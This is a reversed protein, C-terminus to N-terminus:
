PTAARLDGEFGGREGQQNLYLTQADPDFTADCFETNNSVTRAFDYIEGDLTLGRVFQEGNSDGCIFIDGNQPVVTISDPNELQSNAESEFILTVTERGPDHEWIQGLNQNGGSTCDFYVKSDGPGVWLGEERDFVADKRQAQKRVAQPSQDTDDQPNPDDVTVWEVPYPQGVVRGRDMDARFEDELKLAQLPGTTEALNGSRGENRDPVYRYFCSGDSLVGQSDRITSRDETEYLIGSRWAAAEHDFRGAPIVPVAEVPGDAFADVEFIYGHPVGAACRNVVEECTIWTRWPTVGSACNTDTGSQIVFGEVVDYEYLQQGTGPDRGAKNREVVLKTRGGFYTPDPDYPTPTRM